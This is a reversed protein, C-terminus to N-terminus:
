KQGWAKASSSKWPMSKRRRSRSRNSHLVNGQYNKVLEEAQRVNLQNALITQLAANQAQMSELSLIARAHGETIRQEQLAQRAQPSLKLLRLTNTVAARSKGVRVAIEEHSLNFDQSLQQYAGAAELPNLDTRQLNEILALELRDEDNAERLIVPVMELGAIEAARLRREGAILIYQDDQPGPTVVLPMLIGHERISDALENL